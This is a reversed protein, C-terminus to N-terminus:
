RTCELYRKNAQEDTLDVSAFYYERGEYRGIVIVRKTYLCSGRPENSLTDLSLSRVPKDAVRWATKGTDVMLEEGDSNGGIFLYQM